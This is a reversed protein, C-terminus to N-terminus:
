SVFAARARAGRILTGVAVIVGIWYLSSWGLFRLDVSQEPPFNPLRVLAVMAAGAVAFTMPGLSFELWPGVRCRRALLLGAGAALGVGGFWRSAFYVSEPALAGLGTLTVAVPAGIFAVTFELLDVPRLLADGASAIEPGGEIGLLYIALSVAGAAVFVFTVRWPLRGALSVAVLSIWVAFGMGHSFTALLGVSVAAAPLWLGAGDAESLRRRLAMACSLALFLLLRALVSGQNMGWLLDYSGAAWFFAFCVFGFLARSLPDGVGRSIWLGLFLVVSTVWACFVSAVTLLHMRGGFWEYDLAFLLLTLPVHHGNQPAVLWDLLPTSFYSDLIRWDDFIPITLHDRIAVSSAVVLFAAVGTLYLGSSFRLVTEQRVLGSM